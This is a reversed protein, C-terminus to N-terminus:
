MEKDFCWDFYIKKIQRYTGSKILVEDGNKLTISDPSLAIIQDLNIIYGRYPVIFQGPSLKELQDLLSQITFKTEHFSEKLTKIVRCNRQSEIYIIKNIEVSHIMGNQGNILIKKGTPANLIKVVKDMAKEFEDYKFPKILYNIAKLAYAEMTFENSTTLFIIEAKEDKLRIEKAVEIGSLGPMYIDLLVLDFHRNKDIDDVLSMSNNYKAISAQINSHEDFYEVCANNIIELQDLKDDCIAIKIM